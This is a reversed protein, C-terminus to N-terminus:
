QLPLSMHTSPHWRLNKQPTSLVVSQICKWNDYHYRYYYYWRRQELKFMTNKYEELHIDWLAVLKQYDMFEINKLGTLWRATELVRLLGEQPQQSPLCCRAVPLIKSCADCELGATACWLRMSCAAKHHVPQFMSPMPSLTVHCIHWSTAETFDQRWTWDLNNIIFLLNYVFFLPALSILLSIYKSQVLNKKVLITTCSHVLSVVDTTWNM